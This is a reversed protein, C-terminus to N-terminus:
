PTEFFKTRFIVLWAGALAIVLLVTSIAGAAGFNGVNFAFDYALLNPSWTPDVVGPGAAKGILQPEVFLQTGGAFSLVLMYVVYKQILPLKIHLAQRWAGAGDIQAAEVIEPEINQFAGYVVVIWGGAGISFSILAISAPLHWGDVATRLTDIGFVRLVPGFPSVTPDLVFLWLVVAASGTVAGPLYYILRFAGALRGPRRHLLLALALVAVTMLPLWMLLYIGVHALAPWFRYDSFILLYNKLGAFSFGPRLTDDFSIAISYATPVIGFLVLLVTYPLLFLYPASSRPRRHQRVKEAAAPMTTATMTTGTM